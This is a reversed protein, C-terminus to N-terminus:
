AGRDSFEGVAGLMIMNAHPTSPHVLGDSRKPPLAM